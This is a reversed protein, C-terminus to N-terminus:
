NQFREVGNPAAITSAENVGRNRLSCRPNNLNIWKTARRCILYHICYTMNFEVQPITDCNKWPWNGAPSLDSYGQTLPGSGFQHWHVFRYLVAGGLTLLCGWFGDASSSGPFLLHIRPRTPCCAKLTPPANRLKAQKGLANGIPQQKITEWPTAM